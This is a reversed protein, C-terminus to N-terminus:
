PRGTLAQALGLPAYAAGDEVGGASVIGCVRARVGTAGSGLTATEGVTLGLRRALAAGPAFEAAGERPWRGAVRWAPCVQAMGTAAGAGLVLALLALVKRRGARRFSAILLRLYVPTDSHPPTSTHLYPPVPGTRVMEM